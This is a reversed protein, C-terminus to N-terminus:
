ESGGSLPNGGDKAIRGLLSMMVLLVGISLAVDALNFISTTFGFARIALFDLVADNSWRDLSNALAGGAALAAGVLMTASGARYVVLLLFGVAGAAIAVTLLWFRQRESWSAGIGYVLGPNEIHHLEVGGM